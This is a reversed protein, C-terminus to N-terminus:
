QSATKTDRIVGFCKGIDIWFVLRTKFSDRYIYALKLVSMHLMRENLGRM